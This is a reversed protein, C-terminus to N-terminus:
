KCGRALVGLGLILFGFIIWVARISTAERQSESQNM